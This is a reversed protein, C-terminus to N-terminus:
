PLCKRKHSYLGIRSRCVKSCSPCVHEETPDSADASNTKRKLRKEERHRMREEEAQKCGKTVATRWETRKDALSEWSELEIKAARLDRKCVDKFRLIPRGTGRSGQALQGYLLDKPLREPGMRHVHGLWRLRRVSLQYHISSMGVRRLVEQNTIKDQWTINLIRRLCRLHFTNLRNEQFAYTTWTESGYLLTSLVCATYVTIKAKLRLKPKQWERKQLKEVIIAAKGVRADLEKSLSPNSSVISGLYKFDDVNKLLQNNIYISPINPTNQAMIETKKISITLGFDKCAKSFGDILRQLGDESHSVFAADDAFLMEKVLVRKTKTKARLRALNFLKGDHRTHLYLGADNPHSAHQLLLSFFIGFLTPALVCGQKVGSQIEFSRSHKGDFCITGRMKTHFSVILKLPKPPCGIKELLAFLGSRSVLDFAKTLDVFAIYLPQRQEQCKEKIQKLSFIMNITSRGARFGCQTEPYVRDALTQLRPLFVRAFVKGVFSLLSIGRYNICDSRDGKNKFLTIIQADRMTQPFQGEKWCMILLEHLPRLLTSQARKIVEPPIGDSGPAKGCKLARIAASLEELSPEDDLETLAPLQQINDLVNRSVSNNTSYLELYHEVWRDMQSNKDKIVDGEKSKLHASKKTTPGTAWKIGDYMARIDGKASAREIESCLEQWYSNACRRDMERSQKRTAKLNNLTVQNPTQKHNLFARRKAKLLPEM